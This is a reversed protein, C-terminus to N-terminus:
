SRLPPGDPYFCSRCPEMEPYFCSRFSDTEPYLCSGAIFNLAFARIREQCSPLIWLRQGGFWCSQRVPSSIVSCGAVLHGNIAVLIVWTLRILAPICWGRAWEGFSARFRNQEIAHNSHCSAQWGTQSGLQNTKWAALAIRQRDQWAAHDGHVAM